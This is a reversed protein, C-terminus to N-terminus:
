AAASHELEGLARLFALAQAPSMVPPDFRELGLSVLLRAVEGADSVYGMQWDAFLPETIEEYSVIIVDQHRPDDAIELFLENVVERPGELAQLFWDSAYSLMGCVGLEANNHRATKLIDSIDALSMARLARSYYTLRVLM